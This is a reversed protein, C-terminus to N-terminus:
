RAARGITQLTESFEQLDKASRVIAERFDSTQLTVRILINGIRKWRDALIEESARRMYLVALNPQDTRLAHEAKAIFDAANM